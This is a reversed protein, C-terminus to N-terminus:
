ITSTSTTGCAPGTRPPTTPELSSSTRPAARRGRRDRATDPPDGPRPGRRDLRGRRRGRCQFVPFGRLQPRARPAVAKLANEVDLKTQGYPNIPRRPFTRPSRCRRRFGSPRAPPPFSSSAWGPGVCRTAPPPPDGGVNNLYYKLPDTVSEGVYCFAAFHMVLEIQRARLIRASPRRTARPGGPPLAGGARRRGPARLGPQRARGAQARRGGAPPRLPQRHLGSGRRRTREHSHALIAKPPPNALSKRRGCDHLEGRMTMVPTPSVAGFPLESGSNRRLRSAPTAPTSNISTRYMPLCGAPTQWKSGSLYWFFFSSRTPVRAPLM